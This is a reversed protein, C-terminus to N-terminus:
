HLHSFSNDQQEENKMFSKFCLFEMSFHFLYLFLFPFAACKSKYNLLIVSIEPFAETKQKLPPM